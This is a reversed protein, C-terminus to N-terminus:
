LNKIMDAVLQVNLEFQAFIVAVRCSFRRASIIIDRQASFTKFIFKLSFRFWVNCTLFM